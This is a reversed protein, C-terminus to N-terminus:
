NPVAASWAALDGSEFGDAFVHTTGAGALVALAAVDMKLVEEGMTISLHHPLDDTTHYYPYDYWDNEITLSAAIGQDLYPVHDSGFAWLSTEIRLATYDAAADALLDILFQAFPDTELLCDLDADGTYAIMDLDIMAQVKGADGSAVLDAVHDESGLLGQEEGAYCIFLVTGEPPHATLVRAIELVGACGSANDEAGPAASMPSESTSDYHGGVIYWDDPRSSGPLVAIVNYAATGGVNFSPTEVTVGPLAEFAAVLWDRADLIGPALTYRNFAAMTVVDVFWRDGDIEDVLAQVAPDWDRAPSAPRNAAQRVVVTGPRVAVLAQHADREPDAAGTVLEAGDQLRVLALRGSGAVTELGLQALQDGSLGRAIWLRGADVAGEVPRVARDAAALSALAGDGCVLLERGIEVSWGVGPARKLSELREWGIEHIDVVACASPPEGGAAALAPWLGAVLAVAAARRCHFSAKKRPM